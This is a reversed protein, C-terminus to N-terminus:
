KMHIVYEIYIEIRCASKSMSCDAAGGNFGTFCSCVNGSECFGHGSCSNPCAAQCFPLLAIVIEYFLLLVIKM